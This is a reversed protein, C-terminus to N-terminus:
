ERHFEWETLALGELVTVDKGINDDNLVVWFEDGCAVSSELDLAVESLWSADRDTSIELCAVCPLDGFELLFM